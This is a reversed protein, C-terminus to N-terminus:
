RCRAPRSSRPTSKSRDPSGCDRIDWLSGLQYETQLAVVGDSAESLLGDVEPPVKGREERGQLDAGDAGPQRPLCGPVARDSPCPRDDRGGLPLLAREEGRRAARPRHGAAEGPDAHAAPLRGALALGRLAQGEGARGGGERGPDRVPLAVEVGEGGRRLLAEVHGRGEPGRAPRAAGGE